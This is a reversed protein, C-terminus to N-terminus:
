KITDLKNVNRKCPCSELHTIGGHINCLYQHGDVEVIEYPKSGCGCGEIIKIRDETKVEKQYNEEHHNRQSQRGNDQQACSTVIIGGCLFMIAILTAITGYKFFQFYLNNKM